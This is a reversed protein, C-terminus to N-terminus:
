EREKGDDQAKLRLRVDVCPVGLLLHTCGTYRFYGKSPSGPISRCRGTAVGSSLCGRPSGALFPSGSRVQITLGVGPCGQVRSVHDLMETPRLDGIPMRTRSIWWWATRM